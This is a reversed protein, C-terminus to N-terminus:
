RYRRLHHLVIELLLVLECLERGQPAEQSALHAPASDDCCIQMRVFGEKTDCALWDCHVIHGCNGCQRLSQLSTDLDLEAHLIQMVGEETPPRGYVGVARLGEAVSRDVEDAKCGLIM